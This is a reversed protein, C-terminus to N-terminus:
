DGGFNTHGKSMAGFFRRQKDTLEKGRIKKDHLIQRAKNATLGGKEKNWGRANRAFNARRRIIASPSDLGKEICEDTVKGGCYETFKGRNEPKIYIGGKKLRVIDSATTPIKKQLNLTPIIGPDIDVIDGTTPDNYWYAGNESLIDASTVGRPLTKALPKTPMGVYPKNTRSDLFQPMVDGVNRAVYANRGAISGQETAFRAALANAQDIQQQSTFRPMDEDRMMTGDPMRHYGGTQYKRGLLMNPMIRRMVLTRDFRQGDTMDMKAGNSFPPGFYKHHQLGGYKYDKLKGGYKAYLSYPNPQFNSVPMPNMQGLATQQTYDYQNQRGREVRGAIEGLLTRLGMMGIGLNQKWNKPTAPQRKIATLYTEPSFNSFRDTFAQQTNDEPIIPLEMMPTPSLDVQSDDERQQQEYFLGARQMKGGCSKCNNPRKM